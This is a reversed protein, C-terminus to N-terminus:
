GKRCILYILSENQVKFSLFQLVKYHGGSTIGPLNRFTAKALTPGVIDQM